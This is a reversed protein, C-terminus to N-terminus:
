ALGRRGLRDLGRLGPTGEILATFSVRESAATLAGLVAVVAMKGSLGTRAAVAVGLLAGLANAGCDGLMVREALDDGAVALAAGAPGAVASGGATAALPVALGLGVKLARGPRLDLLNLLNATGAIVAAGALVEVARAPGRRSAPLVAAAALATAGIGALKGGGATLVGSRLARLHGRLGKVQQEPRDSVLDDYRGV